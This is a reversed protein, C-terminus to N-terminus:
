KERKTSKMRQTHKKYYHKMTPVEDQVLVFDVRYIVQGGGILYLFSFEDKREKRKMSLLKIRFEVPLDAFWPEMFTTRHDIIFYYADILEPYLEMMIIAISLYQSWQCLV